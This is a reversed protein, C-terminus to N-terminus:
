QPKLGALDVLRAWSGLDRQLSDALDKPSSATPVPQNLRQTFFEQTAPLAYWRNLVGALRDAIDAPLGKPGLLAYYPQVTVAVGQEALTPVDQTQPLRQSGTTAIVRVRGARVQPMPSASDIWAVPVVGSVVDPTIQSVTKYPVHNIKMGTVNKVGEMVLHGGSGLGWSAYSLSDGKARSFAMLEALNKVPVDANVMLVLGGEGGIRGIPAFDFVPDHSLKAQTLKNGVMAATFSMLLTYGDPAARVVQEHALLGNAGPKNDIVIQTGLEKGMFEALPRAYLDAGGGAGSPLVLRIPKGAPWPQQARAQPLGLAAALGALGRLATRRTSAYKM